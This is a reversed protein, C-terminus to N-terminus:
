LNVEGADFVPGEKCVHLYGNGDKRDCTCTLCAGFGCGMHQELSVQCFIKNATAYEAVAKLMPGPGCALIGEVSGQQLLSPLPTLCNGKVGASGDDTTAYVKHGLDAFLKEWFLERKTRGGAIITLPSNSLAQAVFLLPALGMGGGILLPRQLTLNFTNGLPGLVKLQDGVKIQSLLSTGKGLVRYFVIISQAAKNIGAIGLPRNLLPDSLDNVTLMVFQGPSAQILEPAFLELRYTDDTVATNDIVRTKLWYKKNM